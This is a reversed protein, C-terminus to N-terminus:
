CRTVRLCSQIPDCETRLGAVIREVRESEDVWDAVLRLVPWSAGGIARM